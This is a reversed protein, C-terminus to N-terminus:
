SSTPVLYCTRAFVYSYIICTTSRSPYWEFNFSNWFTFHLRKLHIVEASIPSSSNINNILASTMGPNKQNNCGYVEAATACEDANEVLLDTCFLTFIQSTLIFLLRSETNCEDLTSFGSQLTPEDDKALDEVFSLLFPTYHM